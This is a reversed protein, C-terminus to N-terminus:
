ECLRNRLRPIYKRGCSRHRARGITPATIESPHIPDEDSIVVRQYATADRRQQRRRERVTLNALCRRQLDRHLRQRGIGVVIQHHEIQIKRVGIKENGISEQNEIMQFAPDLNDGVGKLADILAQESQIIINNQIDRMATLTHELATRSAPAISNDTLKTQVQGIADTLQELTLTKATELDM